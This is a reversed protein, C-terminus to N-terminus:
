AAMKRPTAAAQEVREEAPAPEVLVYTFYLLSAWSHIGVAHIGVTSKLSAALVVSAFLSVSAWLLWHRAQLPNTRLAAVISWAFSPALLVFTCSETAPGLLMMWAAALALTSVLLQNERWGSRQRYWCLLAIGNASLLQLGVYATRSIPLDFLRILLWLDRYIADLAM